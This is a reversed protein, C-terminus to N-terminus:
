VASLRYIPQPFEVTIGTRDRRWEFFPAKREFGEPLSKTTIKCSMGTAMSTNARIGGGQESGLAILTALFKLPDQNIHTFAPFDGSWGRVDV